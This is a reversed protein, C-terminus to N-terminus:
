KASEVFSGQSNKPTWMSLNIEGRREGISNIMSLLHAIKEELYDKTGLSVTFGNEVGIKIDLVNSVDIMDIDTNKEALLSIISNVLEEETKNEYTVIESLNASVGSTIIEFVNEPKEEKVDVVYGKKSVVSYNDNTKFCAFEEADVVNLVVSHPPNRKIKVTDVYPLSKRIKVEIEKQSVVFMNDDVTLGSAKIIEGDSYIESGKVAIRKIHFLVTFSLVAFVSLAIVLFFVLLIKIRRRRIKKRREARRKEVDSQM